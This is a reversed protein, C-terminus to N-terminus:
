ILRLRPWRNWDMGVHLLHMKSARSAQLCATVAELCSGALHQLFWLQAAMHSSGSDQVALVAAKTNLREM